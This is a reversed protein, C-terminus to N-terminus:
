DRVYVTFPDSYVKGVQIYFQYPFVGPTTAQPIRFNIQVTGKVLSPAGGSYLVVPVPPPPIVPVTSLAGPFGTGVTVPLALPYFRSGTIAGDPEPNGILGGGGTAWVAVVSGEAAPNTMSNVTGDQNLAYAANGPGPAAFVEPIAATVSLVLGTLEGDPTVIRITTSSKGDASSPVVANIQNPGVYLLPASVGDFEVRVGGLSTPLAGNVAIAAVAAAPGLGSGYFSILENPAASGSVTLGASNTVGALSILGSTPTLVSGSKGLVVPGLPAIAVALAAGAEPVTTGSVFRSGDDTLGILYNSGLIPMSAPLPLESPLSGGTVWITSDAAIAVGTVGNAAAGLSYSGIGRQFNNGGMWTAFRLQSADGSIEAVYGAPAYYDNNGQTEARGPFATQLVGATTTFGTDASGGIVINGLADLAM